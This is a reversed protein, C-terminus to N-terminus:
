LGLFAKENFNQKSKLAKSIGIDIPALSKLYYYYLDDYPTNIRDIRGAAQITTRYSYNQSYFIIVNTEICNWGEAGAAYQVLYAWVNGDPLPEHKKGNWEAREGEQRWFGYVEDTLDRLIELEYDFNYFIIVRDNSMLLDKVADIRSQDSNVVKRMLYFLKGTERIPSNEYIDWRDDVVRSYDKKNYGVKIIQHHQSTRRGMEMMVLIDNRHKVLVGTNVYYDIKPYKTYRNFVAHKRCFDSKNKYFGNAVFVPMYDIWKDGPTASLLIWRNNKAIKFFAKVWAGYGVLRQEDFIFFSNSVNEYKKINNWSDIEMSVGSKNAEENKSILFISAEKEWEFSDRKKATTIIYLDRKISPKKWIDNNGNIQVRGKCEKIYYYALATRSKGSGVGGCLIAGPKLKEIAKLQHSYLEIGM